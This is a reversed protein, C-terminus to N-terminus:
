FMSPVTGVARANAFIVSSSIMSRNTLTRPMPRQVTSISKSKSEAAGIDPRGVIVAHAFTEGFRESASFVELGFCSM